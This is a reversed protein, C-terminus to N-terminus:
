NIFTIRKKDFRDEYEKIVKPYGLPIICFPIINLNLNLVKQVEKINKENPAIGIWVGGLSLDTIKLLINEVCASMDCIVFESIKVKDNKYYPIIAVSSNKICMSYPTITSLTNLLESNRIVLFQWPRQDFSSPAQMGARIIDIILNDEIPEDSFKRYSRRKLINDM